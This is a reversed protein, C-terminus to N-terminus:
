LRRPQIQSISAVVSSAGGLCKEVVSEKNGDWKQISHADSHCDACKIDNMM